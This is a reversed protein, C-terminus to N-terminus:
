CVGGTENRWLFRNIRVGCYRFGIREYARVAMDTSFLMAHRCGEEPPELLPKHTALATDNVRTPAWRLGDM